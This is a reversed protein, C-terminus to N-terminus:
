RLIENMIRGESQSPPIVGLTSALTPAIDVIHAIQRYTGQKFTKGWFILPVFRDYSYLTMHTLPYSDSFFYPKLVMIMDGSRFSLTRDAVLGYEGAPIKRELMIEDRSWVEDFFREKLLRKRCM